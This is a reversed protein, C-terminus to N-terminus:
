KIWFPGRTARAFSASVDNLVFEGDYSKYLNKVEIM